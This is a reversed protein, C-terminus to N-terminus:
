IRFADRPGIPQREKNVGTFTGILVLPSQAISSSYFPLVEFQTYKSKALAVIRREMSRTGSSQAGSVGDVLPDIVLPRKRMADAGLGQAAKSFLDNAARLIAVDIPEIPPPTPPVPAPAAVPATTTSLPTAAPTLVNCGALSALLGTAIFCRLLPLSHIPQTTM